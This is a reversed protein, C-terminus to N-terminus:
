HARVKTLFSSIQFEPRTTTTQLGFVTFSVNKAGRFSFSMRARLNAGQVKSILHGILSRKKFYQLSLNMKIVRGWAELNSFFLRRLGRKRTHKSSGNEWPSIQTVTLFWISSMFIPHNQLTTTNLFWKWNSTQHMCTNSQFNPASIDYAFSDLPVM